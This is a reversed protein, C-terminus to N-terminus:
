SWPLAGGLLVGVVLALLLLAGRLPGSRFKSVTPGSVFRTDALHKTELGNVLLSTRNAVERVHDDGINLGKFMEAQLSKFEDQLERGTKAPANLKEAGLYFKLRLANQEGDRELLAIEIRLDAINSKVGVLQMVPSLYNSSDTDSSLLQRSEFKSAEPYKAAIVKLANLKSTAEELDLRKAIPKSDIRQQEAKAEGARSHISELLDQRPMSDRLYERMFKVRAAADDASAAASSITFGLLNLDM